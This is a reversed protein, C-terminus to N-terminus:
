HGHYGNIKKRLIGSCRFTVVSRPRLMMDEGTAPNRGRRERKENVCFKGFGSILVDDGTALSSKILELITEVTETSQKKTFGNQEAIADILHAKTLTM